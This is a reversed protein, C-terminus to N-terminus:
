PLTANLTIQESLNCVSSSVPIEYNFKIHQSPSIPPSSLTINRLLPITTGSPLIMKLYGYFNSPCTSGATVATYSFSPSINVNSQSEVDFIEVSGCNENVACVINWGKADITVKKNTVNVSGISTGADYVLPVQASPRTSSTVAISTNNKSYAGAITGAPVRVNVNLIVTGTTVGVSAGYFHAFDLNADYSALNSRPVFKGATTSLNVADYTVNSLIPISGAPPAYTVNAGPSSCTPNFYSSVVLIPQPIRIVGGVLILRKPIFVCTSIANSPYTYAVQFHLIDQNNTTTSESVVTTPGAPLPNKTVAYVASSSAVAFIALLANLIKEYKMYIVM